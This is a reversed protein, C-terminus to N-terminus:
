YNKIRAGHKKLASAAKAGQGSPVTFFKDPPGGLGPPCRDIIRIGEDEMIRDIQRGNYDEGLIVVDKGYSSAILILVVVGIAILLEM